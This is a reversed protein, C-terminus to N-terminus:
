FVFIIIRPKLTQVLCISNPPKQSLKNNMKITNKCFTSMLIPNIFKKKTPSQDRKASLGKNTIFSSKLFIDHEFDRENAPIIGCHLL